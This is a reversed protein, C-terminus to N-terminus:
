RTIQVSGARDVEQTPLFFVGHLRMEEVLGEGDERALAMEYINDRAPDTLEGIPVSWHDQGFGAHSEGIDGERLHDGAFEAIFSGFPEYWLWNDGSAAAWILRVACLACWRRLGICRM